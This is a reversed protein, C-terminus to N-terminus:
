VEYAHFCVATCHFFDLFNSIYVGMTTEKHEVTVNGYNRKHLKKFDKRKRDLQELLVCRSCEGSEKEVQTQRCTQWQLNSENVGSEHSLGRASIVICSANRINVMFFPDDWFYQRGCEHKICTHICSHAYNYRGPLTHMYNNKCRAYNYPVHSEDCSIQVYAHYTFKM